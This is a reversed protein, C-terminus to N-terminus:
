VIQIIIKSRTSRTREAAKRRREARKEAAKRSENQAREANQETRITEANSWGTSDLRFTRFTYRISNGM